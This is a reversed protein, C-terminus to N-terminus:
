EQEKGFFEKPLDAWVTWGDLMEAHDELLLYDVLAFVSSGRLYWNSMHACQTCSRTGM